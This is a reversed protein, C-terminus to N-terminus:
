GQAVVWTLGFWTTATACGPQQQQWCQGADGFSNRGLSTMSCAALLVFHVNSTGVTFHSQDPAMSSRTCIAPILTHQHHGGVKSAQKSYFSELRAAHSDGKKSGFWLHRLVIIDDKVESLRELSFTRKLGVPGSGIDGGRGM